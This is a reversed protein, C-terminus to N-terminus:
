VAETGAVDTAIAQGYRVLFADSSTPSAGSLSVSDFAAVDRLGGALWIEDLAITAQMADDYGSGGGGRAYDMTGFLTCVVLLADFSGNSQLTDAGFGANGSFMGSVALRDDGYVIHNAFDSGASGGRISWIADGNSKHGAVFVDNGGASALPAGAFSVSGSFFGTTFINGGDTAVSTLCCQDGSMAADYERVWQLSGGVSSFKALCGERVGLSVAPPGAGFDVTDEFTGALIVADFDDVCVGAWKEDGSGGYTETANTVGSSALELLFIDQFGASGHAGTGFDVTDKFTGAVIFSGTSTVDVATAIDVGAGGWVRTWENGGAADFKVAFADNVGNTATSDGGAVFTASRTDGVVVVAGNADFVLDRPFEDDTGGFSTSWVHQGSPTFRALFADYNAPDASALVGGGLDITGRFEGAVYFDGLGDREIATARQFVPTGGGEDGFRVGWTADLAAYASTASCLITVACIATIGARALNRVATGM